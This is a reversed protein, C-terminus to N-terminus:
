FWLSEWTSISFANLALQVAKMELINIHLEHEEKSWIEAATIDASACELWDEIYRHVSSICFPCRSLSELYRDRRDGVCSM